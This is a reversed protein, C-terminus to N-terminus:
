ELVAQPDSSFAVPTTEVPHGAAAARQCLTVLRQRAAAEAPANGHKGLVVIAEELAVCAEDWRGLETLARGINSLVTARGVEDSYSTVLRLAQDFRALANSWQGAAGAAHGLFLRAKAEYVVDNAAMTLTLALELRCEADSVAGADMLARASNILADAELIPDQLTVALSLAEEACGLAREPALGNLYIEAELTLSRCQRRPDHDAALQLNHQVLNLAEDLRHLRMYVSSRLNNLTWMQEADLLAAVEADIRGLMAEWEIWRGLRMMPIQLAAALDVTLAANRGSEACWLLARLAHCGSRQWDIPRNSFYDLWYRAAREIGDRFELAPSRHPTQEIM